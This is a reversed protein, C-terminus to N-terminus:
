HVNWRKKASMFVVSSTSEERSFFSAIVRRIHSCHCVHPIIKIKFIKGEISPLKRNKWNISRLNISSQQHLIRHDPTEHDYSSAWPWQVRHWRVWHWCRSYQFNPKYQNRSILLFYPSALIQVTLCCSSLESFQQIHGNQFTRRMCISQKLICLKMIQDLNEKWFKRQSILEWIHPREM